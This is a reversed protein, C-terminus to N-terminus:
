PTPCTACLEWRIGSFPHHIANVLKRPAEEPRRATRRFPGRSRLRALFVLTRLLVGVDGAFAVGAEGGMAESAGNVCIM